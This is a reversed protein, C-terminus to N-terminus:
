TVPPGPRVVRRGLEADWELRAAIQEPRRVELAADPEAAPQPGQGV